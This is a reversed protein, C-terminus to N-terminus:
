RSLLDTLLDSLKEQRRPTQLRAATIIAALEAVATDFDDNVVLYDYDGHHSMEQVAKQVRGDIVSESDQGRGVLRARLEAKSPPLIFISLNDPIRNRVQAAGQYDIELIVDRGAQRQIDVAAQSTGYAHGFVQAHELFANAAVMEAFEGESVFHYNVGDTEKSRRERTTHSVSVTLAADQALLAQVLSTKGAGSPASILILLGTSM